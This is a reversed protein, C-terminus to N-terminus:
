RPSFSKEVRQAVPLACGERNRKNLASRICHQGRRQGGRYGAQPHKEGGTNEHPGTRLAVDYGMAAGALLGASMGVWFGACGKM